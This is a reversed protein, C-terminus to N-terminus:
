AAGEQPRAQWGPGLVLSFYPATDDAKDALPTMSTNDMTGREVYVAGVLRGARALARRIKPLNRGVKMIVFAETDSVRRLLEDEDLTGPLVTLIDDGQVIAIGAQSWCGSMATIGPIVETPYLAALRVHLHMYSGYFLPDGESLVAVTRGAKLHAEVARASEEYFGTIAEIYRPDNKDIETTVPYELPLEVAAEPLLDDVIKRANGRRGRKAFHAVVDARELAKLAKVTILEPDGPGTGVGILTGSM